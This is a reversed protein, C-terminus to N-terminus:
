PHLDPAMLDLSAAASCCRGPVKVSGHGRAGEGERTCEGGEREWVAGGRIEGRRM